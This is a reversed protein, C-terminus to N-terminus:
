RLFTVHDRITATGSRVIWTGSGPPTEDSRARLDDIDMAPPWQTRRSWRVGSLDIDTLDASRLDTDTFDALVTHVSDTAIVPAKCRLAM